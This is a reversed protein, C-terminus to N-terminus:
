QKEGVATMELGESDARGGTSPPSLILYNYSRINLEPDKYPQLVYPTGGWAAIGQKKLIDSTTAVARVFRPFPEQEPLEGIQEVATVACLVLTQVDHAPINVARDAKAFSDPLEFDVVVDSYAELPLIEEVPLLSFIHLDPYKEKAIRLIRAGGEPIGISILAEVPHAALWETIMSLRPQKTKATMDSYSLIHLNVKLSEATYINSLYTFLDSYQYFDKGLVFLLPHALDKKQYSQKGSGSKGDCSAVGAIFGVILIIFGTRIVTQTFRRMVFCNGLYSPHAAVSSSTETNKKM